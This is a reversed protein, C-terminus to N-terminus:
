QDGVPRKEVAGTGVPCSTALGTTPLKCAFGHIRIAPGPGIGLLFNPPWFGFALFGTIHHVPFFRGVTLM